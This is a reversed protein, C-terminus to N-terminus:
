ADDNGDKDMVDYSSNSSDINENMDNVAMDDYQLWSSL